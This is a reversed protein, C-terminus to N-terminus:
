DYDLRLLPRAKSLFSLGRLSEEGKDIESASEVGKNGRSAASKPKPGPKKQKAAKSMARVEQDEDDVARPKPKRGSKKKQDAVNSPVPEPVEALMAIDGEVQVDPQVKVPKLGAGLRTQKNDEAAANKKQRPARKKPPESPGAIAETDSAQQGKFFNLLNRAPRVVDATVGPVDSDDLNPDIGEIDSM